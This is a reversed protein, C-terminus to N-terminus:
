DRQHSSFPLRPLTARPDNIAPAPRGYRARSLEIVRQTNATKGGVMPLTTASFGSSPVGDVLLKLYIHYQPLKVFDVETMDPYFERALYAADEAGTRFVILTGVNGLVAARLPPDLQELYQNALTLNLRYKRTESLIDAFNETAISHTEDVTLYFDRRNAEPMDQRSLAALWLKTVLLAGLLASADEGIRGKALNVLLIKGTDMAQRCDFTNEPQGIIARMLRSSTFAGVKNLVPSIAENRFRATYANFEKRWFAQLHADPLTAVVRKRFDADLLLRPVLLLTAGPTALLTLLTYRLVHELRPGWSEGWIKKMMAIIGSAVLHHYVPDVPELPNFPVPRETDTANFYIVDEVREDPIYELIDEVLPGHPDIVAVGDGARIDSVAINALLTSKGTGTKGLLYLSVRRDARKIGFRRRTGRWNSEGLITRRTNSTAQHM